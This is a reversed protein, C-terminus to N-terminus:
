QIGFFLPLGLQLSHVVKLATAALTEIFCALHCMCHSDVHATSDQVSWTPLWETHDMPICSINGGSVRCSDGYLMIYLVVPLGSMETQSIYIWNSGGGSYSIVM